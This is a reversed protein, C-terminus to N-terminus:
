EAALQRAIVLHQVETTGEYIELVRADRFLREVKFDKLYGYGGHVQVAKEACFVAARSAFLKAMAAGKTIPRGAGYEAAARYTLLRSAEVQLAMEVLHWQISQFSAIPAGFQERESAYRRSESLAAEAIGLSQAAIGIRGAALMALAIKLGQGLEGLLGDSPVFVDELTVMVTSSANLGMKREEPGRQVGDAHLDLIFASIGRAGQETETVAYIIGFDAQAGNSIFAKSGRLCWGGPVTEARCSLNAADSGAGPETLLYAGLTRGAAADPLWRQRQADNGFRLISGNALTNHVSLIVCTSACAKAVEELVLIYALMDLGAGGYEAPVTIGMLGLGAAKALIEHPFAKEADLRAAVPEIEGRAFDRALDRIMRHQESLQFDM